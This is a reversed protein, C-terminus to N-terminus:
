NQSSITRHGEPVQAWRGGPGRSNGRPVAGDGVAWTGEASGVRWARDGPLHQRGGTGGEMLVRACLCVVGRACVRARECMCSLGERGSADRRGCEGASVWVGEQM